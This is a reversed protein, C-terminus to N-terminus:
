KVLGFGKFVPPTTVQKSLGSNSNQSACFTHKLEPHCCPRLPHQPFGFNVSTKWHRRSGQEKSPCSNRSPSSQRRPRQALHTQLAPAARHKVADQWGRSQLWTLARPRPVPQKEEALDTERACTCVLLCVQRTAALRNPSALESTHFSHRILKDTCM